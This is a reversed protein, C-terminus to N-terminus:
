PKTWAINHLDYYKQAFVKADEITDHLTDSIVNLSRDCSFLYIESDGNYSCIALAFIEIEGFEEDNVIGFGGGISYEIIKAGDLNEPIKM